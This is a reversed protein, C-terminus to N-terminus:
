LRYRLSTSGSTQIPFNFIIFHIPNCLFIARTNAYRVSSPFWKRRISFQYILIRNCINTKTLTFTQFHFNIIHMLKLYVYHWFLWIDCSHYIGTWIRFNTRHSATSLKFCYSNAFRCYSNTIICSIIATIRFKDFRQLNSYCLFFWSQFMASKFKPIITNPFISWIIYSDAGQSGTCIWQTSAAWKMIRTSWSIHIKGEILINFSKYRSYIAQCSMNHSVTTYCCQVQKSCRGLFLICRFWVFCNSPTSTTIKYFHRQFINIYRITLQSYSCM